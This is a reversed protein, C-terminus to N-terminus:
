APGILAASDAPLKNGAGTVSISLRSLARLLNVIMLVGPVLVVLALGLAFTPRLLIFKNGLVIVFAVIVVAGVLLLSSRANALMGDAEFDHFAFAVRRLSAILSLTGVAGALLSAATFIGVARSVDSLTSYSGLGAEQLQPLRIAGANTFLGLTAGLTYAIWAVTLWSIDRAPAPLRALLLIASLTLAIVYLSILQGGGVAYPVLTPAARSLLQLAISVTINIGIAQRLRAFPDPPALAAEDDALTDTTSTADLANSPAPARDLQREPWVAVFGSVYLLSVLLTSLLASGPLLEFWALGWYVTFIGLTLGYVGLAVLEARPRGAARWRSLGVLGVGVFLALVFLLSLMRFGPVSGLEWLGSSFDFRVGLEHVANWAFNLGLLTAGVLGLTQTRRPLERVLLAALITMVLVLAHEVLALSRAWWLASGFSPDLYSEGTERWIESARRQIWGNVHMQVFALAIMLAFARHLPLAPADTSTNTGM